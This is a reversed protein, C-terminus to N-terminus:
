KICSMRSTCLVLSTKPPICAPTSRDQNFILSPIREREMVIVLQWTFIHSCRPGYGNNLDHMAMQAFNHIYEVFDFSLPFLNIKLILLVTYDKKEIM